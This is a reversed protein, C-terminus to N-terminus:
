FFYAFPAGAIALSFNAWCFGLVCACATSGITHECAGACFSFAPQRDALERLPKKVWLEIHDLKQPVQILEAAVSLVRTLHKVQCAAAPPVARDLVSSICPADFTVLAPTASLGLSGTPDLPVHVQSDSWAVIDSFRLPRRPLRQLNCYSNFFYVQCDRPCLTM